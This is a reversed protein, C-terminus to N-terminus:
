ATLTDALGSRSLGTVEGGRHIPVRLEGALMLGTPGAGVILVEADQMTMAGCAAGGLLPLCGCPESRIKWVLFEELPIRSTIQDAGM